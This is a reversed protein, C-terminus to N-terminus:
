RYLGIETLTMHLKNYTEHNYHITIEDDGLSAALVIRRFLESNDYDNISSSVNRATSALLETIMIM